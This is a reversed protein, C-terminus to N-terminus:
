RRVGQDVGLGVARGGELAVRLDTAPCRGVSFHELAVLVGTSDVNVLNVFFAGRVQSDGLSRWFNDHRSLFIVQAKSLM